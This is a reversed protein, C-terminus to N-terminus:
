PTSSKFLLPLHLTFEPPIQAEIDTEATLTATVQNDAYLTAQNRVTGSAGANITVAFTFTHAQGGPVTGYWLIAEVEGEAKAEVLLASLDMAALSNADAAYGPFAGGTVSGPVYTTQAPIPDYLLVSTASVSSNSVTITYTLTDGVIATSASVQKTSGSVDPAPATATFVVPSGNLGAATVTVTYTGQRDGVTLTTSAQGNADTTVNEASLGAGSADAPQGTIAFSVPVGGVGSGCADRVTVILPNPLTRSDTATQGDGATKEIAHDLNLTAYAIGRSNGDDATFWMKYAARDGYGDFGEADFLVQPTYTRADRWAVGDDIHLLSYPYKSWHIGDASVAYGIGEHARTRGGSYWLHYVGGADKVIPGFTAYNSDWAGQPGVPLVPGDGYRKWHKGDMSYALAIQEIGGTTVDYYMVYKNNWLDADDLIASGNPNYFVTLPGYTGGNWQGPVESVLKMSSDQTVSQANTWTIGDASEAYWMDEILYRMESGWYWIKYYVGSGGFGNPDYVVHAHHPTAVGPVDLGELATYVETWSVGDTSTAYGIGAGSSYWMKYQGTDYILTPYYAKSAQTPVYVPNGTAVAWNLMRGGCDSGQFTAANNNTVGLAAAGVTATLDDLSPVSTLTATAIGASTTTTYTQTWGPLYGLSTTFVVTTGDPAYQAGTTNVTAQLITTSLGDAVIAPPSVILSLSPGDDGHPIMVRRYVGATGTEVIANSQARVDASWLAMLGCVALAILLSMALTSTTRPIARGFQTRSM